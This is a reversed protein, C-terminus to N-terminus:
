LPSTNVISVAGSQYMVAQFVNECTAYVLWTTPLLTRGMDAKVPHSNHLNFETVRLPHMYYEILNGWYLLKM